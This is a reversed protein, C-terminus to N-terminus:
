NNWSKYFELIQLIGLNTFNWSKYFELIQLIGLNTFNWSKYFELIQLYIILRSNIYDELYM